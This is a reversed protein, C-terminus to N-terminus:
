QWYKRYEWSSSWKKYARYFNAVDTNPQLKEQAERLNKGQELLKKALYFDFVRFRRKVPTNKTLEAFRARIEDAKLEGLSLITEVVQLTDKYAPFAISVDDQDFFKLSRIPVEPLFDELSKITLYRKYRFKEITKLMSELSDIFSKFVQNDLNVLLSLFALDMTGLTLKADTVKQIQKHSTHTLIGLLFNFNFSSDILSLKIRLDNFVQDQHSKNGGRAEIILSQCSYIAKQKDQNSFSNPDIGRVLIKKAIEAVPKSIKTQLLAANFDEESLSGPKFNIALLSSCFDRHSQLQRQKLKKFLGLAILPRDYNRDDLQSIKRIGLYLAIDTKSLERKTAHLVGEGDILYRRLTYTKLGAKM